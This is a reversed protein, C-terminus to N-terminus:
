VENIDCRLGTAQTAAKAAAHAAAGSALAKFTHSSLVRNMRYKKRKKGAQKQAADLKKTKKMFLPCTPAVYWMREMAKKSQFSTNLVNM